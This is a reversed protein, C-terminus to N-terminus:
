KVKEQSRISDSILNKLFILFTSTIFSIIFAVSVLLSKRQKKAPQERVEITGIKKTMTYNDFGKLKKQHRNIISQYATELGKKVLSSNNATYTLSFINKTYKPIAYQFGEGRERITITAIDAPQEILYKTQNKTIIEGVEVLLSGQYSPTPKKTNFHIYIYSILTFLLSFGLIFYKNQWITKIIEQENTNTQKTNDITM